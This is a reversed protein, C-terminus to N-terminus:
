GEPVGDNVWAVLTDIESKSLSTDNRFHGVQPDAFWPPMKRLVVAQKIAKAWPRVEQYGGFSMPAAEGPRHCGQCRAQIIPAVDKSYTRPGPVSAVASVISLGLGLACILKM